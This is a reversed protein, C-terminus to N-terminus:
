VGSWAARMKRANREDPEQTILEDAGAKVQADGTEDFLRRLCCVIDHRVLAANKEDVASRCREILKDLLVARVERNALGVQWLSGLVHRATVFREDRTVAILSPLGGLVTDHSAGPAMRSLTQGAISRVRNDRNRLLPEILPWAADAWRVPEATAQQLLAYDDGQTGRDGSALRDLAARVDPPVDIPAPHSL